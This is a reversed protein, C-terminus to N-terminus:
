DVSPPANNYDSGWTKNAKNGMVLELIGGNKIDDHLFWAKDWDVGNLKVSQIYKNEPAYNKSLITFDKGNELHVTANEFVPSGINYMPIGPTVPYFGLQSFVVFATMGGGDEDGPVGMLDDRFWQNLLTRIRKQTKWPQGAYNYLYPIHLSPENAMTFQGVNGTQDPLQAYFAFKSRGLPESFTNNLHNIFSDNGGMLNILNKVNHQVDWRYTWANNESYFKRAGMGGSFVYDFPEIFNGKNDKPHFFKTEHNFLNQYNFSNKLYFQYEENKGLEKAIQSLCWEDYSTGLTVAVPQRSEFLHVEPVTEKEGDHLAPYYGQEKYFVELEGSPKGSWPALTKEAIGNKCAEYAKELDFGRLGKKYADIVSAVGHNSNMRRSDGTVEPFTPMWFNDMQEAMRVFSNIIDEEKKPDVLVRLPHHARYSDWIWDDTYFPSGKDEHVSNDFASYYRGDESLCVPREYTRYLSTYFVTKDDHVDGQVEIKNLADNWIQKAKTQLELVTKGEVERKFNKEAQAEDIFSIGYQVHIKKTTIPFNLVLSANKGSTNNGSILQENELISVTQPLEEFTMYLYVKTDNEILQYGSLSAGDWNLGGNRSNVIIYPEEDKEFEIEYMASQHSLGFNVVTNQDDLYVQYSYPTLKENDYSYDIVSKLDSEEGQFPSLNFASSGRHSTTILPLGNLLDATFDRREPYVRMLSNPLHITPFTPVLLHSINGIYPNVYDVPEIEAIQKDATSCGFFVTALLCGIIGTTIFYKKM